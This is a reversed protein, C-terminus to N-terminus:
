WETSPGVLPGARCRACDLRTAVRTGVNAQGGGRRAIGARRVRQISTGGPRGTWRTARRSQDLRVGRHQDKDAVPDVLQLLCGVEPNRSKRMRAARAAAHRASTSSLRRIRSASVTSPSLTTSADHDLTRQRSSAVWTAASVAESRTSTRHVVWRSTASSRILRLIAIPPSADSAPMATNSAIAADLSAHGVATSIEVSLGGSSAPHRRIM